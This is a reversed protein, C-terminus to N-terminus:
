SPKKNKEDLDLLQSFFNILYPTAMRSLRPKIIGRRKSREHVSDKEENGFIAKYAAYLTFTFLGIAVSIVVIKKARKRLFGESIAIDKKISLEKAKLIERQQDFTKKM